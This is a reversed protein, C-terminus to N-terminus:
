GIVEMETASWSFGEHETHFSTEYRDTVPAPFEQEALAATTYIGVINHYDYDSEEVVWVRM